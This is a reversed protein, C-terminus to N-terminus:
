ILGMGNMSSIIPIAADGASMDSRFKGAQIARSILDALFRVLEQRSQIILNGFDIVGGTVEVKNVSPELM